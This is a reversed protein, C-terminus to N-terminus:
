YFDSSGICLFDLLFIIALFRSPRLIELLPDIDSPLTLFPLTLLGGVVLRGDFGVPCPPELEPLPFFFYIRVMHQVGVPIESASAFPSRALVLMQYCLVHLYFSPKFCPLLPKKPGLIVSIPLRPQCSRFTM